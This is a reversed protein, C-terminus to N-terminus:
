IAVNYSTTGYQAARPFVQGTSKGRGSLRRRVLQGEMKGGNGRRVREQLMSETEIRWRFTKKGHDGNFGSDNVLLSMKFELPRKSVKDSLSARISGNKKKM